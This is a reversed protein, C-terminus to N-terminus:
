EAMQNYHSYNGKSQFSRGERKLEVRWYASCKLTGFNFLRQPRQFFFTRYIFKSTKSLQTPHTYYNGINGM